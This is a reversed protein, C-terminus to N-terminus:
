RDAYFVLAGVSLLVALTIATISALPIFTSM